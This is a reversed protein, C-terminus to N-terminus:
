FGALLMIQVFQWIYHKGIDRSIRYIYMQIYMRICIFMLQFRVQDPTGGSIANCVAWVAEKRTKFEATNMIDLLIPLVASDLLIQIYTHIHM